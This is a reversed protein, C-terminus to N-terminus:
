FSYSYSLAVRYPKILTQEYKWQTFHGEKSEFQPDSHWQFLLTIGHNGWEIYGLPGFVWETFDSAWGKDAMPSVDRKTIRSTTSVLVGINKLWLPMQYAIVTTSLYRWGNYNRGSDAEYLWPTDDDASTLMRYNLTHGTYLLVHSWDGPIVAGTDFQFAGSVWGEIVAGGFSTPTQTHNTNTVPNLALGVFDLLKWGTGIKGGATFVLVALPSIRMEMGGNVSVPSLEGFLKWTFSNDKTLVGEGQLFPVKQEHSIVVKTEFGPFYVANLWQIQNKVEAAFIWLPVLWLIFLKM